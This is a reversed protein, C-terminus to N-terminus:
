FYEASHSFLMFRFASFTLTVHTETQPVTETQGSIRASLVCIYDDCIVNLRSTFIESPARYGRLRQLLGSFIESVLSQSYSSLM